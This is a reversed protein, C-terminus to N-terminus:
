KNDKNNYLKWRKRIADCYKPDLEMLFAKRGLNECAMLTSGSGGFLDLVNDGRNSCRMIPRNHLSVPKQTPHIYDSTNDRKKVWLNIVELVRDIISKSEVELNLIENLNNFKNSFEASGKVGYVCPEYCKNFAVQPTPNINNKIWLCVRLNRIGNETFSNQIVWIYKEDCWYFFHTNEKSFIKANKITKNIFDYYSKIDKNDDVLNSDSYKGKTGIGKFYDLGINYPPDCYVINALEGNMLKEVDESKTSDGCMLRHDGLEYIEGVKSDPTKINEVEADADFDDEIKKSKLTGFDMLNNIEINEFGSLGINVDEKNLKVIIDSLKEEDWEGHIRNLALNLLKEKNEDLEVFHCPVEILGEEKAAMTRQHGGVIINLRDPHKNVVVPEVFGFERISQKLKDAQSKDIQRPNYDAFKLDEIKVIEIKM